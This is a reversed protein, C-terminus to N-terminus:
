RLAVNLRALCAASTRSPLTTKSPLTPASLRKLSSTFSTASPKSHPMLRSPKLSRLSFSMRSHKSTSSILCFSQASDVRNSTPCVQAASFVKSTCRSVRTASATARSPKRSARARSTFAGRSRAARASRFSRPKVREVFRPAHRSRRDHADRRPARRARPARLAYTQRLEAARRPNGGADVEIAREIRPDDEEISSESRRARVRRADLARNVALRYVWTFFESRGEFRDLGHFARIFVDQTIDDADSESGSLHLAFAFIRKRYRRVLEDFAATNGAKARAVLTAAAQAERQAPTMMWFTLRALHPTPQFFRHPRNQAFRAPKRATPIPLHGRAGVVFVANAERQRHERARSGCRRWRRRLRHSVDRRRAHARREHRHEDGCRHLDFHLSTSAIAHDRKESHAQEARVEHARHSLAAFVHVHPAARLSLARASSVSPRSPTRRDRPRPARRSARGGASESSAATSATSSRAARIRRSRSRRRDCSSTAPRAGRRARLAIANM